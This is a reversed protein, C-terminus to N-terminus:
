RRMIVSRGEDKKEAPESQTLDELRALLAAFGCQEPDYLGWEDQMPKTPKRPRPSRASKSPVASTLKARPSKATRTPAAPRRKKLEPGEIPAIAPQVGPIQAWLEDPATVGSAEPEVMSLDLTVRELAAPEFDIREFGAPIAPTFRASGLVAPEFTEWPPADERFEVELKQDQLMSTFDEFTDEPTPATERVPDDMAVTTEHQTYVRESTDLALTRGAEEQPLEMAPQMAAPEIPLPEVAFARVAEVRDFPAPPTEFAPMTLLEGLMPASASGHGGAWEDKHRAQERDHREAVLRVLYETIQAALLAPSCGNSAVPAAKQKKLRKLLGVRGPDDADPAEGSALLPTVLRPVEVGDGELERLRATLTADDRTSFLPPTLVLDPRRTTLVDLAAAVSGVVVIEADIHGPALAAVRAAQREDPEIALIIPLM